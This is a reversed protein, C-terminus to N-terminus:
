IQKFLAKLSRSFGWLIDYLIM